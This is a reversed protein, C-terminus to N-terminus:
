HLLINVVTKTHPYYTLVAERPFSATNHRLMSAAAVPLNFFFLNTPMDILQQKGDMSFVIADHYAGGFHSVVSHGSIRKLIVTKTVQDHIFDLAIAYLNRCCYISLLGGGVYLVVGVHKLIADEYNWGIDLIVIVAMMNEALQCLLGSYGLWHCAIPGDLIIYMTYTVVVIILFCINPTLAQIINPIGIVFAIFIFSVITIGYLILCYMRHQSKLKNKM